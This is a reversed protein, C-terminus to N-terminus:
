FKRGKNGGAPRRDGGIGRDGGFSRDGGGFGGRDGRPARDGGGFGGRDGGFGGRKGAFEGRPARDGGFDGRPARDGGFEGRPARDGRDGGFNGRPARDGSFGGRDGGFGGRDGGFGGRDGGFRKGGFDGRPARDGGFDGRPARDFSREGGQERNFGGRPADFMNDGGGYRGSRNQARAEGRPARDGAFDNRPARDFRREGGFDGRIPRDFTREGAPERSFSREGGREGGRDGGFSREGGSEFGKGHRKFGDNHRNFHREGGRNGGERNFPRKGGGSRDGPRFRAELGALEIEGFDIEYRRKIRTFAGFDNKTVLSIASGSRGARGTRGIRHIYDEAFKPLDFNIVQGITAVDIGRAAVDTAILVDIENRRLRDLVKRRVRQQLDGHLADARVGGVRLADAINDCDIKTAVFMITQTEAADKILQTAIKQKHEFGDAWHIKQEVNATPLGKPALEVMQPTKMLPAAFSMVSDSLTASFLATQRTAPLSNVIKEVDDIFGMDLMRDAEDLVLLELREFSVRQNDIMDILRGPTAVLVEHPAALDRHQVPYPVGGTITVIKCRRQARAFGIAVKSVQEALERTPTLVLVRPGRGHNIPAETLKQLSPLLFAATKGTGTQASAMLDVNSLLAPIAEAQIPTPETINQKALEDVLHQALGLAAFGGATASQTM